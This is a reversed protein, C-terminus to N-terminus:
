PTGPPTPRMNNNQNEIPSIELQNQVDRVGSVAKAIRLLDRKEREATVPGRLTVVGKITTIKINKATPSLSDDDMIASRIKKTIEVDEKSESQDTAATGAQGTMGRAPTEGKHDDHDCGTLFVCLVALSLLQKKM